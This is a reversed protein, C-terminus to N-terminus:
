WIQTAIEKQHLNNVNRYRNFTVMLPVYGNVYISGRVPSSCGTVGYAESKSETDGFDILM